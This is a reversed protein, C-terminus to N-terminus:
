AFVYLCYNFEGGSDFEHVADAILLWCCMNLYVKKGSDSLTSM